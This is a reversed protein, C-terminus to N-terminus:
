TSPSDNTAVEDGVKHFSLFIAYWCGEVLQAPYYQMPPLLGRVDCQCTPYLMYAGAVRCNCALTFRALPTIAEVRNGCM